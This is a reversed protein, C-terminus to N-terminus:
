PAVQDIAATIPAQPQSGSPMSGVLASVRGETMQWRIPSREAIAPDHTITVLTTGEEAVLEELLSVVVRGTKVDLAGTPEDALLVRPRRILARAIAVRQQEGGSLREPTATLRHGLGVRELMDAALKNRQWFRTGRDYLLPAAVNQVATRMPLLNFQQFIFGFTSGRLQALRKKPILRVDTGDLTYEGDSPLDLLGLLNLLTSKGSGSPGVISIRQGPDIDLSINHLIPLWSGDPLRFGHSVNNFSVLSM